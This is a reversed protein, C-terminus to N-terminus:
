AKSNERTLIKKYAKKEKAKNAKIPEQNEKNANYMNKGGKM